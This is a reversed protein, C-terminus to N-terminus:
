LAEVLFDSVAFFHFFLGAQLCLRFGESLLLSGLLLSTDLQIRFIKRVIKRIVKMKFRL